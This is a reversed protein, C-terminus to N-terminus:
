TTQEIEADDPMYILEVDPYRDLPIPFKNDSISLDYVITGVTEVLPVKITTSGFLNGISMYWIGSNTRRIEASFGDRLKIYPFVVKASLLIDPQDLWRKEYMDIRKKMM